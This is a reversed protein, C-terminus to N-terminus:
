RTSESALYIAERARHGAGDLLSCQSRPRGCLELEIYLIASLYWWFYLQQGRRKTDGSGVRLKHLKNYIIRGCDAEAKEEGREGERLGPPGKWTGEWGQHLTEM